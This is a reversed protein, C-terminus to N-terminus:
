KSGKCCQRLVGLTSRARKPQIPAEKPSRLAWKFELKTGRLGGLLTLKGKKAGVHGGVLWSLMLIPRLKDESTLKEHIASGGFRSKQLVKCHKELNKLIAAFRRLSVEWTGFKTWFM